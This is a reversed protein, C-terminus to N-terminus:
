RRKSALAEFAAFDTTASNPVRNGGSGNLKTRLPVPAKSERAKSTGDQTQQGKAPTGQAAPKGKTPDDETRAASGASLKAEQQGFWIAQRAPTLAAVRKAEKPDSALDYIIQHGHDSELALEAVTPTLPWFGPDDKPLSFTDTVVEDFDDIKERGAETFADVREKFEAAAAADAESQQTKGQSARDERITKLTEYRSLDALYKPDLEGYQYKKTDTHDPKELDDSNTNAGSKDPTLGPKGSRLADLEARMASLERQTAAERREAARRARYNDDYREQKRQHKTKGDKGAAAAKKAELAKAVAAQMDEQSLDETGKEKALAQLAEEEEDETLTIEATKAAAEGAPKETSTKGAAVNESHSRRNVDGAERERAEAAAREDAPSGGKGDYVEGDKVSFGQFKAMEEQVTPAKGLAENQAM